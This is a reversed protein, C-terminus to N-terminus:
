VEASIGEYSLVPRSTLLVIEVSPREKFRFHGEAFEGAPDAAFNVTQFHATYKGVNLHLSNRNQILRMVDNFM